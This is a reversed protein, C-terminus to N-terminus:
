NQEEFSSEEEISELKLEENAARNFSREADNKRKIDDLSIKNNAQIM